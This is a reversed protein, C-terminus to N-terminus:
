TRIKASPVFTNKAQTRSGSEAASITFWPGLTLFSSFPCGVKPLDHFRRLPEPLKQVSSCMVLMVLWPVRASISIFDLGGASWYMPLRRKVARAHISYSEHEEHYPVTPYVIFFM